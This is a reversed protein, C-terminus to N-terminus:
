AYGASIRALLQIDIAEAVRLGLAVTVVALQYISRLRSSLRYRIKGRKKMNRKRGAWRRKQDM